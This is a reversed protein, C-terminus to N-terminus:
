YYFYDVEVYLLSAPNITLFFDLYIDRVDVDYYEPIAIAVALAIAALGAVPGLGFFALIAIIIGGTVLLDAYQVNNYILISGWPATSPLDVKTGSSLLSVSQEDTLSLSIGEDVVNLQSKPVEVIENLKQTKGDITLTQEYQYLINEQDEGIKISDMIFNFNNGIYEVHVSGDSNILGSITGKAKLKKLKSDVSREVDIKFTGDYHIKDGVKGYNDLKVDFDNIMVGNSELMHEYWAIEAQASVAPVFAMSLLLMVALLTGLQMGKSQKM